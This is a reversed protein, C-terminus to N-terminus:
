TKTRRRRRMLWLVSVAGAAAAPSVVDTQAVFGTTSALSSRDAIEVGSAERTGTPAVLEAPPTTPTSLPEAARLSNVPPAPAPNAAPAPQSARSVGPEIAWGLDALMGLAAPGVQRVSEGRHILSTMLADPDGTPYARDDLHTLSSHDEYRPPAYLVIPGGRSDRAAGGWTVASGTAAALLQQSPNAYDVHNTLFRGTAADVLFRDVGVPRLTGNADRMGWGLSSSDRRAFSSVLGVGHGVEHLVFSELDTRGRPAAGEGFHWPETSNLVIRVDPRPDHDYGTLANVLAVPDMPGDPTAQAYSVPESTGAVGRPLPGWLVEVEIPVASALHTSWTRLGAEVSARAPDPVNPAYLAALSARRSFIEVRETASPAPVLALLALMIKLMRVRM